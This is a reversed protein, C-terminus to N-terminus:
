VSCVGFRGRQRELLVVFSVVVLYEFCVCVSLCM